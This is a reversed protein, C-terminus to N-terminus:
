LSFVSLLTTVFPVFVYCYINVHYKRDFDLFAQFRVKGEETIKSSAPQLLVPSVHESILLALGLTSFQLVSQYLSNFVHDSKKKKIYTKLTGKYIDFYDLLKQLFVDMNLLSKKRKSAACPVELVELTLCHLPSSPPAKMWCTLPVLLRILAESAMDESKERNTGRTEKASMGHINEHLHDQSCLICEGKHLYHTNLQCVRACFHGSMFTHLSCQAHGFNAM